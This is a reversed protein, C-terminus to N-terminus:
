RKKVQERISDILQMVSFPKIFYADAGSKIGVDYDHAQGKASILIVRIHQIAPDARITKLVQLGDLGGPMMIDLLVVDPKQERVKDLATIGDGAEILEFEGELAIKLMHRIDAQDDVILVKFM